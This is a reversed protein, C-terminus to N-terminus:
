PKCCRVAAHNVWQFCSRHVMCVVWPGDCHCGTYLNFGKFNLTIQNSDAISTYEQTYAARPLPPLPPIHLGAEVEAETCGCVHVLARSISKAVVSSVKDVDAVASNLTIQYIQSTSVCAPNLCKVSAPKDLSTLGYSISLQELPQWLSFEQVQMVYHCPFM